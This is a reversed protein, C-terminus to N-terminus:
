FLNLIYYLFYKKMINQLFIFSQGYLTGLTYVIWNKEIKFLLLKLLEGKEHTVKVLNLQYAPLGSKWNRKTYDTEEWYLFFNEDFGKNKIFIPNNIVDTFLGSCIIKSPPSLNCKILNFLITPKIHNLYFTSLSLKFRGM